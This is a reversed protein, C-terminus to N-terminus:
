DTAKMVMEVSTAHLPPGRDRAVEEHRWSTRVKDERTEPDPTFDRLIRSANSNERRNMELAIRAIERLGTKELHDGRRMAKLIMAFREFDHQKKSQLPQSTFFDVVRGLNEMGRVRLEKRDGNNRTVTGCGFFQQMRVLIQEDRQHQVVRFEPLVQWGVTMNPQRNFAVHFCGEGDVFGVIWEAGLREQQNAASMANNGCEVNM